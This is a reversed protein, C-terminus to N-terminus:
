LKVVTCLNLNCTPRHEKWEDNRNPFLGEFIEYEKENTVSTKPGTEKLKKVAIQYGNRWVDDELDDSLERM